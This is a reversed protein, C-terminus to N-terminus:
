PQGKEKGGWFRVMKRHQSGSRGKGEVTTTVLVGLPLARTGTCHTDRMSLVRVAAADRTTDALGQGEVM